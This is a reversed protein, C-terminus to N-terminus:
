PVDVVAGASRRIDRVNSNMVVADCGDPLEFGVRIDNDVRFTEGDSRTKNVHEAPGILRKDFIPFRLSLNALPHREFHQPLARRHSRQVVRHLPIHAFRLPVNLVIDFPRRESFIEFVKDLSAHGGVDSGKHSRRRDADMGDSIFVAARTAPLKVYHLSQDRPRHSLARKAHTRCQNIGGADVGFCLLQDRKRLDCALVASHVNGVNATFAVIQQFRQILHYRNCPLCVHGRFQIMHFGGTLRVPVLQIRHDFSDFLRPGFSQVDRGVHVGIRRPCGAQVGGHRWPHLGASM